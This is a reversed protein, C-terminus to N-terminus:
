YITLEIHYHLISYCIAYQVTAILDNRSPLSKKEEIEEKNNNNTILKNKKLQAQSHNFGILLSNWYFFITARFLIWLNDSCKEYYQHRFGMTLRSLYLNGLSVYLFSVVVIAGARLSVCEQYILSVCRMEKITASTKTSTTTTTTTTPCM